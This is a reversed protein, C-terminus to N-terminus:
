VCGVGQLVWMSLGPAKRTDSYQHQRERGGGRHSCRRRCTAPDGCGQDPGRSIIVQLSGAPAVDDDSEASVILGQQDRNTVADLGPAPQEAPPPKVSHVAPATVVRDATLVAM